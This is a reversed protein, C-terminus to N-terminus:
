EVADISWIALLALDMESSRLNHGRLRIVLSDKLCLSHNVDLIRYRDAVICPAGFFSNSIEFPVHTQLISFM